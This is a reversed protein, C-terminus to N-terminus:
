EIVEKTEAVPYLIDSVAQFFEGYVKNVQAKMSRMVIKEGRDWKLSVICGGEKNEVVVSLAAEKSKNTTGIMAGWSKSSQSKVHVAEIIGADKESLTLKYNSAVLSKVVAGWVEDYSKEAFTATGVGKELVFPYVKAEEAQIIGALALCVAVFIVSINRM